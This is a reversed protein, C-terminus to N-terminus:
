KKRYIFEETHKGKSVRIIYTGLSVSSFDIIMKKNGLNQTTLLDGDASRIEVTAGILKKGTKFVFLDKIRPTDTKVKSRLLEESITGTSKTEEFAYRPMEELSGAFTSAAIFLLALTNRIRLTM